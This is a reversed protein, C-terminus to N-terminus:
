LWYSINTIDYGAEYYRCTQRQTTCNVPPASYFQCHGDDVYNFGASCKDDALSFCHYGCRLEDPVGDPVGLIKDVHVSYSPSDLACLPLGDPTKILNCSSSGSVVVRQIIAYLIHIVYASFMDFWALYMDMLLKKAKNRCIFTTHHRICASQIIFALKNV